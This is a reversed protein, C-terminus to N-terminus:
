LYGYMLHVRIHLESVLFSLNFIWAYMAQETLCLSSSTQRPGLGKKRDLMWPHLQGRIQHDGVRTSCGLLAQSGSLAEELFAGM